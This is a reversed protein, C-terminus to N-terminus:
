WKADCSDFPVRWLVDYCCCFVLNTAEECPLMQLQEDVCEIGSSGIHEGDSSSKEQLCVFLDM